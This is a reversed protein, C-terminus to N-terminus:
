TRSADATETELLEEFLARYHKMARRLDETTADGRDSALSVDHATRYNDVLHPHDVSIDSARREFDDTPYGRDRMVQSVLKDADSVAGTPNDVFRAQVTRWEEIYRDRAGAALPRIDLEERRQQREQLEAEAERKTPAEAVTREYEPGFGERLSRSRRERMAWWVVALVVLAVAIAIVIWVWTAM